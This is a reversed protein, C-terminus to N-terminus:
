PKITRPAYIRVFILVTHRLFRFVFFSFRFHFFLRFSASLLFELTRFNKSILSACQVACLAVCVVCVFVRVGVLPSLLPLPLPCENM